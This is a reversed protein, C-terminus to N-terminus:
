NSKAALLMLSAYIKELPKNGVQVETSKISQKDVSITEPTSASNSVAAISIHNEPMCMGLENIAVQEIRGLSSEQAIQYEIRYNATELRSIENELHVIEYGLTAGKICFYVALLAYVFLSLCTTFLLKKGPNKKRCTRRVKKVQRLPQQYSDAQWDRAYDYGAQVM